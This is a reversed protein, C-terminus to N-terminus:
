KILLMKLKWAENHDAFEDIDRGLDREMVRISLLFLGYVRSSRIEV